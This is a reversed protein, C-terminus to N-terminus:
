TYYIPAKIDNGFLEKMLNYLSVDSYKKPRNRTM